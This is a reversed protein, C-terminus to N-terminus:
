AQTNPKSPQIQGALSGFLLLYSCSAPQLLKGSNAELWEPRYYPCLLAKAIFRVLLVRRKPRMSRLTQADLRVLATDVFLNLFFPVLEAFPLPFNDLHAIIAKTMREHLKGGAEQWTSIAAADFNAAGASTYSYPKLM